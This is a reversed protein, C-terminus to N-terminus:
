LPIKEARREREGSEKKAEKASQAIAAVHLRPMDFGQM